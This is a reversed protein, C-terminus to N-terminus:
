NKSGGGAFNALPGDPGDVIPAAYDQMKVILKKVVKETYHGVTHTVFVMAPIQYIKAKCKEGSEDCDVDKYSSGSCARLLVSPVHFCYKESNKGLFGLRAIRHGWLTQITHACREFVEGWGTWRTRLDIRWWAALIGASRPLSLPSRFPILPTTVGATM